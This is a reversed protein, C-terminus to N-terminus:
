LFSLQELQPRLIDAALAKLNKDDLFGKLSMRAQPLPIRALTEMAHMLFAEQNQASIRDTEPEDEVGNHNTLSQAHGRYRIVQSLISVARPTQNWAIINIASFLYEPNEDFGYRDKLINLLLPLSEETDLLGLIFVIGGLYPNYKHTAFAELFAQLCALMLHKKKPDFSIIAQYYAEKVLAAGSKVPEEGFVLHHVFALPNHEFEKNLVDKKNM